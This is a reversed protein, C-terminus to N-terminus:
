PKHDPFPAEKQGLHPRHEKADLKVCKLRPTNNQVKPLLREKERRHPM